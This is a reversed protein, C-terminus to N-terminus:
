LYGNENNKDFYRICADTLAKLLEDGYKGGDGTIKGLVVARITTHYALVIEIAEIDAEEIVELFQILKDSIATVLQYHFMGGNGKLQMAPYIMTSIVYETDHSPLPNKAIEIGKALSDLYMEALPRFDVTNKELLEQAKEIIKDSLGGSGVKGKLINLPNIFQAKRKPIQNYHDTM